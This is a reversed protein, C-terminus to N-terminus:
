ASSASVTKKIKAVEQKKMELEEKLDRVRRKLSTVIKIKQVKSIPM